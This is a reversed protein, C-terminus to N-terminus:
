SEDSEGDNGGGHPQLEQMQKLKEQTEEAAKDLVQRVDDVGLDLLTLATEDDVLNEQRGFGLKNLMKQDAEPHLQSWNMRTDAVVVRTDVLAEYRLWVDALDTIGGSLDHQLAEANRGEILIRHRNIYRLFPPLQTEASAKSSPIAGGWVFEPIRTYDLILIFLTKLAARTDATFGVPPSAFKFDGTTFIAANQDMKILERDETTGFRDTYQQTNSAELTDVQEAVSDLGTYTPLPNGMLKVGDLMKIVVDDYHAMTPLLPEVLPHGYLENVSRGHAFHVMPIRGILNPFVEVENPKRPDHWDYTITRETPTWREIVDVEDLKNHVEVALVRRYDTPDHELEVIDPPPISWSGDPNVFVFMDGLAFMDELINLLEPRHQSFWKSLRANTYDRLTALVDERFTGDGQDSRQVAEDILV